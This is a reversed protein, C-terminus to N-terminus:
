TLPNTRAPASTHPPLCRDPRILLNSVESFSGGLDECVSPVRRATSPGAPHGRHEGQALSGLDGEPIKGGSDPGARRLATRALQGTLLAKCATLPTVLFLSHLPRPAGLLNVSDHFGRDQHSLLKPLKSAGELDLYILSTLPGQWTGARVTSVSTRSPCPPGRPPAPSHVPGM